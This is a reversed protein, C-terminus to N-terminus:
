KSVEAENRKHITTDTLYYIYDIIKLSDLYVSVKVSDGLEPGFEKMNFKLYNSKKSVSKKLVENSKDCKFYFDMNELGKTKYIEKKIEEMSFYKGSVYSLIGGALFASLICGISEAIDLNGKETYTCSITAPVYDGDLGLKYAGYGGLAAGASMGYYSALYSANNIEYFRVVMNTKNMYPEKEIKIYYQLKGDKIAHRKFLVGSNLLLSLILILVIILRKM